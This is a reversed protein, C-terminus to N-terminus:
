EIRKIDFKEHLSPFRNINELIQAKWFSKKMEDNNAKANAYSAFAHSIFEETENKLFSEELRHECDSTCKSPEPAGRRKNCPGYETLSKTCIVGKRVNSWTRGQSTLIQALEAVDNTGWEEGMQHKISIESDIIKRIGILSKGGYSDIDNFKEKAINEITEKAKMVRLEETVLDIEARLEEDTLVYYLTMELSKHGFVDMLIKPAQVLALGVLRALTKRFRHTRIKQDSPTESIGLRKVFGILSKNVSCLPNAKDATLDNLSGMSLWLNPLTEKDYPHHISYINSYISQLRIQQEFIKKSFDTLIWEKNEGSFSSTLKFTKGKINNDKYYTSELSDIQLSLMESERAGTSLFIVCMHAMQMTAFLSILDLHGHPPWRNATDHLSFGKPESLSLQFPLKIIKNGSSDIWEYGALIKIITKRVRHKYQGARVNDSEYSIWADKLLEGVEILNPYINETLWIIKSYLDAAYDDPLPLHKNIYKENEIVKEATLNEIFGVEEVSPADHWLGLTKLANLRLVEKRIFYARNSESEILDRESLIELIRDENLDSNIDLYKNLSKGLIKIFYNIIILIASKPKLTTGKKRGKTAPSTILLIFYQNCKKICTNVLLEIKPNKLHEDKIEKYILRSLDYEKRGEKKPINMWVFPIGIVDFDNGFNLTYMVKQLEHKRLDKIEELSFNIERSSKKENSYSYYESFNSKKNM